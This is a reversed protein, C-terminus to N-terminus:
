VQFFSVFGFFIFLFVIMFFFSFSFLFFKSITKARRQQYFNRMGKYLYFFIIITILSNIYNMWDLRLVNEIRSICMNLLMAIFVFIYFHIAFIAHSVYYFQKRRIYLLKLLLAVLPLSIFLMQPFHHKLSNIFDSIFKGRKNRYKNNINIEKYTIYRKFWGDKITGTSLVSDYQKKSLYHSSKDNGVIQFIGGNSQLSDKYHNFEERSMPMGHNFVKTFDNFDAPSMSDIMQETKGNFAFKAGKFESENLHFLSFFILFFIFSTFIYMRVPNLYSARRGKMYEKPLFGPKFLLDKLTSFFKGDFHTIDKFFHSILQWISEEPEINEQGCNHCYKGIVTTGCNLCNKEKRQSPHSM